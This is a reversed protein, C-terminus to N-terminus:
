RNERTVRWYVLMKKITEINEIDTQKTDSEITMWREFENDVNQGDNDRIAHDTIPLLKKVIKVGEVFNRALIYILRHLATRGDVDTMNPEAGHRLLLDVVEVHSKHIIPPCVARHLATARLNGTRANVDAGHELLIECVRVEGARAAYHLATYGASDLANM